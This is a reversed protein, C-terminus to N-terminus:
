SVWSTMAHAAMLYVQDGLSQGTPLDDMIDDIEETKNAVYPVRGDGAPPGASPGANSAPPGALSRWAQGTGADPGTAQGRVGRSEDLDLTTGQSTIAFSTATAESTGPPAGAFESCPTALHEPPSKELKIIKAGRGVQM